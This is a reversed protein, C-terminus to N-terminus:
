SYDYRMANYQPHFGLAEYFPKLENSCELICKYCNREKGIELLRKMLMKGIGQRQFDPHVAVDQIYGCSGWFKPEILISATGIVRMGTDTTLRAVYTYIGKQLRGWYICLFAYESMEVQRIGALADFFGYYYDEAM